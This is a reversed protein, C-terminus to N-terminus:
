YLMGSIMAAARLMLVRALVIKRVTGWQLDVFAGLWQQRYQRTIDGVLYRL